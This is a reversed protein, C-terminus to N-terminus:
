NKTESTKGAEKTLLTGVKHFKSKCENKWHKGKGCHLCPGPPLGKKNGSPNKCDKRLHGLKGCRFCALVFSLDLHILSSWMFGSVNFNISSFTPSFKLSIPVPSFNRFLGAIAQVTLDLILLHSRM